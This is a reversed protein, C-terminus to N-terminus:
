PMLSGQEYPDSWTVGGPSPSSALFAHDVHNACIPTDPFM